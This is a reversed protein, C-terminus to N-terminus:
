SISPPPSYTSATKAKSKAQVHLINIFILCSICTMFKMVLFNFIAIHSYYVHSHMKLLGESMYCTSVIVLLTKAFLAILLLLTIHYTPDILLSSYQQIGNTPYNSVSQCIRTKMGKSPSVPLMLMSFEQKQM